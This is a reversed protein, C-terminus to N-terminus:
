HEDILYECSTKTDCTPSNQSLEEQDHNNDTQEPITNEIVHYERILDEDSSNEKTDGDVVSVKEEDSSLKEKDASTVEKAIEHQHLEIQAQHTINEVIIDEEIWDKMGDAREVKIEEIKDIETVGVVESVEEVGQRLSWSVTVCIILTTVASIVLSRLWSSM